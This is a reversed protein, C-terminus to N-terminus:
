KVHVALWITQAATRAVRHRVGRPIVLYDGEKMEVREGSQFELAASGRLVMVWEDEAQDYWFDAPNSHSRSVIREIKVAASHFLALFEEGVGANVIDMFINKCGFSM